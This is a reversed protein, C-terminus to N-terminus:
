EEIWVRTGDALDPSPDIVIRDGEEVGSEISARNGRPPGLVVSRRVLRGHEVAFVVTEGESEVVCAQPVVVGGVIPEQAESPSQEESPSFVVRLGMEPRLRQDPNLFVVRVEISGKQRNATPWVRDVRGDYRDSPFADLFIAASAGIEVDAISTEQLEVQAELSAFDVMTAVSGRSNGGLSNPSVVEGVEADKLVIVGDFPARVNTKELTAAALTRNAEAVQLRASAEVIAAECAALTREAQIKAGRAGDLNAQQAQVTSLSRELTSRAQDLAQESAFGQEHLDAIRKSERRAFELDTQAAALSAEAAMVSSDSVALASRATECEATARQESAKAARSEAEASALSAQYEEAFLRAVVDGEKVVSGEQVNMEVIRGPTDASLAARVRPIVYGNAATGSLAGAAAAGLEYAEAVEVRPLRWRDLSRMLPVRFLWLAGAVLALLVIRM